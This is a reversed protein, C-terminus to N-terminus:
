RIVSNLQTFFEPNSIKVCEFNDVKGGTDLLLSFVSFAMAIRHDNFSNFQPQSVTVRGSIKFGADYEDVSLGAQRFNDTLSNIRDTEKKRLEEVGKIEFTGDAFIGAVALIPIEDIINPVISLPISVNNLNSSRIILDGFPENNSVSTNMAIINAGMQKLVNIFGTRTPNLSINKILLESDPLLLTLVIFFSASSIDGPVFYDQAFPYDKQSFSIIWGADSKESKLNLLRETHDRTEDKVILISQENVHLGALILCSKVQASSVPLTYNINKIQSPSIRIPLTKNASLEIEAGMLRLPEAIRLMPRRSLSEDGTITSSFDQAALLGTLLRATTGSNGANLFSSAENFGKYGVGHVIVENKKTEFQVGLQRFCEITSKVDDGNSINNIASDGKAMSSFFVARHSISKDGPLELEGNVKNIKNFSQLM